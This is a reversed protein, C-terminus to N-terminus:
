GGDLGMSGGNEVMKWWEMRFIPCNNWSFGGFFWWSFESNQVMSVDDVRWIGVGGLILSPVSV